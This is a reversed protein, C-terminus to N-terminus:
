SLNFHYKLKEEGEFHSIYMVLVFRRVNFFSALFDIEDECPHPTIFVSKQIPYFQLDKLKRRFVDRAKKHKHPIDFMVLRWKQDWRSQPNLKMEEIKYSLIKEEGQKALKIEIQGNDLEEYSIFKRKQLNKLDRIFRSKLFYKRRFYSKIVQKLILSGSLPSVSSILLLGTGLVLYKLLKYSRSDRRPGTGKAM